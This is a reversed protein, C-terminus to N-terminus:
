GTLTCGAEVWSKVKNTLADNTTAYNAAPVNHFGTNSRYSCTSCDVTGGYYALHVCGPCFYSTGASDPKPPRFLERMRFILLVSQLGLKKAEDTTLPEARQCLRVHAPALWDKIDFEWAFTIKDVDGLNKEALPM